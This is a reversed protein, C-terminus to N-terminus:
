AAPRDSAVGVTTVRRRILRVYNLFAKACDSLDGRVWREEGVRQGNRVIGFQGDGWAVLHAVDGPAFEAACLRSLISDSFMVTSGLQLGSALLRPSGDNDATSHKPM